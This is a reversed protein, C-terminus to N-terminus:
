SASVRDILLLSSQEFQAETAAPAIPFKAFSPFFATLTHSFLSIMSSNLLNLLFVCAASNFSFARIVKFITCGKQRVTPTATSNYIYMNYVLYMLINGVSYFHNFKATVARRVVSGLSMDEMSWLLVEALFFFAPHYRMFGLFLRMRYFRVSVGRTM